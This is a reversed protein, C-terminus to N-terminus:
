RNTVPREGRGGAPSSNPSLSCFDSGINAGEGRGREWLHSLPPALLPSCHLALFSGGEGWGEAIAGPM